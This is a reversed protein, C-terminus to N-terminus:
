HPWTRLIINAQSKLITYIYKKSPILLEFIM